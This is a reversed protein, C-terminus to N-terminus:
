VESEQTTEIVVPKVTKKRPKKYFAKEFVELHKLDMWSSIRSKEPLVGDFEVLMPCYLKQFYQSMQFTSIELAFRVPGNYNITSITGAGFTHCFVSMLIPNNATDGWYPNLIFQRSLVKLLFNINTFEAIHELLWDMIDVRRFIWLLLSALYMNKIQSCPITVAIVPNGGYVIQAITCYGPYNIKRALAMIKDTRTKSLSCGNEKLYLFTCMKYTLQHGWMVRTVVKNAYNLLTERCTHTEVGQIFGNFRKDMNLDGDYAWKITESSELASQITNGDLRQVSQGRVSVLFNYTSSAM